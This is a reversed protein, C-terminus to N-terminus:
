PNFEIRVSTIDHGRKKLLGKGLCGLQGRCLLVYQRRPQQGFQCGFVIEIPAIAAVEPLSAASARSAIASCREPCVSSNSGSRM